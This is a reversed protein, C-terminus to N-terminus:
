RDSTLTQESVDFDVQRIGTVRLVRVSSAREGASIDFTSSQQNM